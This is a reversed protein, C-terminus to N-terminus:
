RGNAESGPLPKAIKGTKQAMRQVAAVIASRMDDSPRAELSRHYYDLAARYDQRQESVVGMNFLAVPQRPDHGLAIQFLRVADDSEGLNYECVGMDVLAGIQSSDRAVAMRYHPVAESWNGTDFLVDGLAINAEVSTSDRALIANLSDALAQQRNNSGEVAASHARDYNAKVAEFILLGCAFVGFLLWLWMAQGQMPAASRRPRRLPHRPIVVDSGARAEPPATM